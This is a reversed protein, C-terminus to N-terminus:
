SRGWQVVGFGSPSFQEVYLGRLMRMVREYDKQVPAGGDQYVKREEIDGIKVSTEKIMGADNVPMLDGSLAEKALRITARALQTPIVNSAITFGEDDVAGVRPWGLGQTQSVKAGRWRVNEDLYATADRLAAEKAATSALAWVTNNYNGWYADAAALSAYSEADELGSGDEVILAM